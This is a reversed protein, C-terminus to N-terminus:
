RAKRLTPTGALDQHIRQRAQEDQERHICICNAGAGYPQAPDQGPARLDESRGLFLPKHQPGGPSHRRYTVLYVAGVDRKFTTGLPYARFRYTRGSRGALTISGLSPM